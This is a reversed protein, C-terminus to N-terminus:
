CDPHSSKRLEYCSAGAERTNLERQRGLDMAHGKSSTEGTESNNAEKLPHSREDGM